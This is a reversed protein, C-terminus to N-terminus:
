MNMLPSTPVITASGDALLLHETLANLFAPKLMTSVTWSTSSAKSRWTTRKSRPSDFIEEGYVGCHRIFDDGGEEDSYCSSGGPVWGPRRHGDIALVTANGLRMLIFDYCPLRRSASGGGCRPRAPTTARTARSAAPIRPTDSCRARRDWFGRFAGGSKRPFGKVGPRAM